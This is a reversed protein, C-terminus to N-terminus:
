RLLFLVPLRHIANHIVYSAPGLCLLLSLKLCAEKMPKEQQSGKASYTMVQWSDWNQDTSGGESEAVVTCAGASGSSGPDREPVSNTFM